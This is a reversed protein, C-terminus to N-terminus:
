LRNSFDLRQPGPAPSESAASSIMAQKLFAPQPQNHIKFPGAAGAAASTFAVCDTLM